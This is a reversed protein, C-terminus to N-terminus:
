SHQLAEHTRELSAKLKKRANFLYVRATSASTRLVRSIEEASYGENAWLSLATREKPSLGGLLAADLPRAAELGSRSDTVLVHEVKAKQYLRSARKRKRIVDICRRHLITFLWTEFGARNDFRELNRFVQLFAEQCADEADQRNGLINVALALSPATFREVIGPFDREELRGAIAFGPRDEMEAKVKM